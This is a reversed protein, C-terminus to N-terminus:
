LLGLRTAQAVAERRGNVQLKQYLNTAHRKVTQPAIVLAQAIEKNSMRQALLALIERERETLPELLETQELPSIVPTLRAAALKDRGFADLIRDVYPLAVGRGRLRVLLAMMRPGLDVFLRIFGGPEAMRVAQELRALAARTDGQADLLLAQLALVEITFRTNHTTTVLDYLRSLAAAAQERSAPTNQALFIKPLTLQPAYFLAMLSTPVHFGIRSAWSNATGLDGQMAALEARFAEALPLLSECGTERLYSIASAVADRALDPEHRAQHILALIFASYLCPRANGAYRLEFSALAHTEAAALENRQYHVCSLFHHAWALSQSLRRPRVVDLLDTATQLMATLDAAVWQVYCSMGGIRGRVVGGEATDERRGEALAAYARDLRGIKQYAFALHLWAVSRVLYWERPTVELAQQTQAILAETDTALQHHIKIRLAAAEGLLHRAHEPQDSMQAILREARDLANTVYEADLRAVDVIWASLLLLEPNTAVTEPRFQGLWRNLQLWQEDNMLAHRHQAVLRIAAATDQGALAHQLAEEVFGNCAFWASARLHLAAIEDASAHQALRARLFGQFLQHYRYWQGQVDLAATFMGSQELWALYTQPQTEASDSGIVALCLPDCLRNLISTKLLFSQIAPPIHSQVENILYDVVFQNEAHLRAIQGDIEGSYRLTLTALRLGTAWGETKEALVAVAEATLPAGLTQETFQAIEPTSFRLDHGRIETVQGRARLLRLPLPPDQRTAIVLHLRHPPHQLLASLLDHVSQESILHYDDLVLVFDRALAELENLLSNAILTVPPLNVGSLLAQTASLADPFITRVAGLFYALFVGLDSDHEDLSLWAHPSDCTELWISLLTSKGFGAPAAVLILSCDWGTDLRAKLSPRDILDAIVRPRHFKTRLVVQRDIGTNM